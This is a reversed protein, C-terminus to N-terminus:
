YKLLGQKLLNLMRTNQEKTGQYNNINNITALNSRYTFSSDIGIQKLADVLSTGQYNKNSLYRNEQKSIIANDNVWGIIGDELLYPNNSNEIIRTIKGKTILPRLKQNSTSSIYVGNIEVIDGVKYQLDSTEQKPPVPQITPENEPFDKNLFELSNIRNNDKWVEFHLHKGYANGSDSIYGIVLGKKIFQNQSVSLGNRMHAYLTHYGNQHDIKISNGYSLNGVSGKMNGYGDQYFTVIGDSHAIVYDLENNEGIIDTAQHANNYNQLIKCKGNQLVRCDM